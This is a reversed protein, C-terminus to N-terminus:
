LFHGTPSSWYLTDRLNVLQSKLQKFEAIKSEVRELHTDIIRNVSDCELEPKAKIKMLLGIETLALDLDRCRKIFKLHELSDSKYLRFNGKSRSPAPLLHLKEYYRITQISCGSREALEGIKM